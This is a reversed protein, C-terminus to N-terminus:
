RRIVTCVKKWSATKGRPNYLETLIIYIGTRVLSGNDATADWVLSASSGALLNETIKRIFRGTEDFITVTVINDIGELILDIVLLDEYGDNDPSIRASSLTIRDEESPFPSHVSNSKGPTGWGSSESASHWAEPDMSSIEPRVKELTIGEVSGLLPHHMKENYRVEDILDLERNFLLLHGNNDPLSPLNNVLFIFERESSFYKNLIGTRDTTLTYYTAPLFCRESESVLYLDSTDSQDNVSALYLTAPDIIKESRNYLEIFDPTGPAPNFLLENFTIDDHAAKEPIGFRFSSREAPNGAFDTIKSGATITYVEGSRINDSISIKYTRQLAEVPIFSLTIFDDVKIDPTMEEFNIVPESFSVLITSDDPMFVNELGSFHRDPNNLFVSNQKGPTGGSKSDSSRWNGESYFPFDPDIIELSWGGGEKISEDHWNRSYELGNILAGTSDSLVIVRGEDALLPFPKLGLTTGFGSFLNTDAVSCLILYRGAEMRCAPMHFIEDGSRLKFGALEIPFDTRNYLELYEKAPLGVAPLPDAMVESIVIDGPDAWAPTFEVVLDQTCNNQLDCLKRIHLHNKDKNRFVVPFTIKYRLDTIKNVSSAEILNELLFNQPLVEDASVSESYVLELSSRGAIICKDIVPPVMDAYFVGDIRLDDFWLLRDRTSTYSYKIIFWEPRFLHPDEGTGGALLKGNKDAVKLEWKGQSSRIVEIVAYNQIGINTQWNVPCVIIREPKGNVLKWLRLTDDYGELNVGVAFGNVKAGASFSAPYTDSM